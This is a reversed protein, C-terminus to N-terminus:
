LLKIEIHHKQQRLCKKKIEGLFVHKRQASYPLTAANKDNVGSYVTFFVNQFLCTYVLDIFTVISFLRNCLDLSLLVNHLTVIFPKGNNDCMKIRVQLKQKATVHHRDAVEILKDIDELLGQIFESVEPSMHCTSESYLIWTTLQLSGGFNGTTCEDNGFMRAM